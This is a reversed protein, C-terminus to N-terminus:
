SWVAFTLEGVNDGSDGLIRCQHRSPTGALAKHNVLDAHHPRLEERTDIQAAALEDAGEVRVLAVALSPDSLEAAQVDDEGSVEPLEVGRFRPAECRDWAEDDGLARVIYFFSM